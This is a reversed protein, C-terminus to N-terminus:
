KASSYVNDKYEKYEEYNRIYDKEDYLHSTLVLCISGSSFSQEAAWLGPPIHLGYYPRDLRVTRKNQGDDILVEFAGSAAILFQHCVKHAHAGRGEGGPIDYLYFVRQINFPLNNGGEIVSIHGNRSGIRPVEIVASDYVTLTKNINSNIFENRKYEKKESRHDSNAMNTFEDMSRIYDSEDYLMSSLVLCVSNTSFNELTRWTMPPLYLGYYSRNLTFHHKSQGDFTVVDFSGSLAVIVEHQCRFAHSGRIEGGPVDYIYYARQIEFPIQKKEEIFTLNGRSDIIKPLKILELM